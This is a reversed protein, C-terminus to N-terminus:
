FFSLSTSERPINKSRNPLHKQFMTPNNQPLYKACTECMRGTYCEDKTCLCQSINLTPRKHTARPNCIENKEDRAQSCKYLRQSINCGNIFEGERNKVNNCLVDDIGCRWPLNSANYACSDSKPTRGSSM